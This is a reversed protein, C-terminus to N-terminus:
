KVPAINRGTVCAQLVTPSPADVTQTVTIESVTPASGSTQPTDALAISPAAAFVIAVATALIHKATRFM